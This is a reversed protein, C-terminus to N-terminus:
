GVMQLIRAAVIQVGDDSGLPPYRRPCDLAAQLTSQWHGSCFDERRMGAAPFRTELWDKLMPFEPFDPREVWAVPTQTVWSESLLGYGPKCLLLDVHPLLDVARLQSSFQVYRVNEAVGPDGGDGPMPLLFLWDDMAALASLDFPPNGCGGFLVLVRKRGGDAQLGALQSAGIAQPRSAILPISERRPFAAMDMAMPPSLLLDCGSYAAALRALAPDDADLWHRYIAHWDLTALALSPIALAEAAPFALPSINSLVLDAAFDRLVAQERALQEPMQALWDRLAAISAARDERIASHQVVGVDVAGGVIEVDRDFGLRAVIEDAPLACRLLFRTDPRLAQLRQLVPAMQALHGFGHGSIYVAIRVTEAHLQTTVM